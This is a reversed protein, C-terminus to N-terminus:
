LGCGSMWPIFPVGHRFGFGDDDDAGPDRPQGRADVIKVRRVDDLVGLRYRPKDRRAAQEAYEVKRRTKCAFRPQISLSSDIEKFHGM